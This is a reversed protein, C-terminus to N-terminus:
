SVSDVSVTQSTNPDSIHALEVSVTGDDGQNFTARYPDGASGDGGEANAITHEPALDRITIIVDVFVSTGNGADAFEVEWAYGGPPNSADATGTWALLVPHNPAPPQPEVIGGPASGIASIAVVSIHDSEPDTLQIEASTLSQGPD